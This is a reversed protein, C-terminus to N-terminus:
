LGVSEFTKLYVIRLAYLWEETSIAAARKAGFESGIWADAIDKKRVFLAAFAASQSDCSGEFYEVM